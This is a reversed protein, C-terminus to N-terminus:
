RARHLLTDKYVTCGVDTPYLKNAKSEILGKGILKKVIKKFDYINWGMSRALSMKGWKGPSAIILGLAAHPKKNRQIFLRNHPNKPM